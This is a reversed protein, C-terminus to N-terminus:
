EPVAENGRQSARSRSPWGHPRVTASPESDADVALQGGRVAGVDHPLSHRRRRAARVAESGTITGTSSPSATSVLVSLPAKSGAVTLGRRASAAASSSSPIRSSPSPSSAARRAPLGGRARPQHAFVSKAACIAVACFWFQASTASSQATSVEVGAPSAIACTSAVKPCNSRRSILWRVLSGRATLFAPPTLSPRGGVTGGETTRRM